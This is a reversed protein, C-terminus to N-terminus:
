LRPIIIRITDTVPGTRDLYIVLKGEVINETSFRIIDRKDRYSGVVAPSSAAVETKKATDQKILEQVSDEKILVTDEKKIEPVSIEKKGKKVNKKKKEQVNKAIKIEKEPVSMVTDKIEPAKNVTDVKVVTSYLVASDDVVGAMLQSYSDTKKTTVTNTDAQAAEVPRILQLSQLDFLQWTGNLNKLEFGRDKKNVVVSYLQEPYRNGPFGIFLNYVTDRVPSLIIHGRSSSSHSEEGIRVYFPQGKADQIFIFYDQQAASAFGSFMLVLIFFSSKM